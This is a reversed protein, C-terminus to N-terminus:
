WRGRLVLTAGAGHEVPAPALVTSRRKHDRYLYYAGVGGVALGAVVLVNGAFAYNGARDELSKLDAIDQITRTSHNDIDAQLSEESAWLALGVVVALGGGIALGLGLNRDHDDSPPGAPVASGPPEGPEGSGGAAGITAHESGSGTPQGSGTAPHAAHPSGSGAPESSNNSGTAPRTTAAAGPPAFVPQIAAETKAPGDQTAITATADRPSAGKAARHVVLTTQGGETTATGWVIEDVSLMAMVSDACAPASPDCGVAAATEAFTTNGVSVQGDLGRALKQLTAGLKTRVAPEADGDVPLVLIKHPGATAIAGIAVISISLVAVGIRRRM